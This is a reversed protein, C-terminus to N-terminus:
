LTKNEVRVTEKMHLIRKLIESLVIGFIIFSLFIIFGPQLATYNTTISSLSSTQINLNQLQNDLIGKFGIYSMFIAVVMVDAMSWKSSKFAFFHIIKNRRVKEKGLLYIETSILKTIPFLISFALILIGVLISDVKKTKLLIEVVDLISKSQFFLVQDNFELHEGMLLFDLKKIRADIEIMPSTLATILLILAFTISFIFLVKHLGTDKMFLFWIILFFIVTGLMLFSYLYSKNQLDNIRGSTKRNFDQVSTVGAQHLINAFHITDTTSDYTQKAYEDLKEEVLNKLKDRNDPKNVENYITQSLTPVKKRVDSWNVLTNVAVKRVKGKFTEDDHQILSDAETILANLVKSIEQKLVQEQEPTFTFDDIRDNAIKQLNDKWVNVSLLGHVIDNVESYDKKIKARELALHHLTLAWWVNLAIVCILIIILFSHLVNRPSIM